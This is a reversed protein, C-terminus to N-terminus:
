VISFWPGSLYDIVETFSTHITWLSNTHKSNQFHCSTPLDLISFVHPKKVFGKSNIFFESGAFNFSMYCELVVCIMFSGSLPISTNPTGFDWMYIPVGISCGCSEKVFKKYNIPFQDMSISVNMAGVDFM